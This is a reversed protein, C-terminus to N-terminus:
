TAVFAHMEEELLTKHGTKREVFPQGHKHWMRCIGGYYPSEFTM